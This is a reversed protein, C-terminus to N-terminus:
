KTLQYVVGENQPGGGTTTGYLLNGHLLPTGYPYAGDSSGGVFEHLVTLNGSTDLKFVTGVQGSGGFVATGYLNGDTDRVLASSPNAGETGNFNHLITKQGNVDIKFITGFGDAGGMYTTGYFNGQTDAILADWPDGGDSAGAFAHLMTETWSGGSQTLEYVTGCVGSECTNTNGSSTTGYLKGSRLTAYGEPAFGDVGGGFSYLVKESWKGASQTLAFATGCGTPNYAGNCNPNQGGSATTGYLVGNSSLTLRAFPNAGDPGTFKHLVSFSGTATVKFIVGCGNSAQAIRCASVPGGIQTTGYLNGAADRVLGSQPSWGDAGSFSHLVTERGLTTVKFVTGKNHAGGGDTTGYLNGNISVLQITGPGGGDAGGSFAYLVKYTQAEGFRAMSILALVLLTGSLLRAVQSQFQDATDFRGSGAM